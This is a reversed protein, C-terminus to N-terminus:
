EELPEAGAFRVVPKDAEDEVGPWRANTCLARERAFPDVTLEDDPGRVVQPLLCLLGAARAAGAGEPSIGIKDCSTRTFWPDNEALLRVTTRGELGLGSAVLWFHQSAGRRILYVLVRYRLSENDM